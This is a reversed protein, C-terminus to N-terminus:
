PKVKKPPRNSHNLHKVASKSYGIEKEYDSKAKKLKELLVKHEASDAINRMQQPDNKLDYLEYKGAIEIFTYRETRIASHKPSAYYRYYVSKRWDDPTKGALIGKLSEGQMADPIAVGALDLFTPAYDINVCIDDSVSGAKILKPYRVLLPMRLSEELALRKDYFGHQGLWYGQDSSYVVLTNETLEHKDLYDLVRGVNEDVATVCRIYTKAMHQYAVRWKDRNNSADHPEMEATHREYYDNNNGKRSLHFKSEKLFAKKLHSDGIHVDEYLNSPEPIKVDKLLENHRPPYQYDHHPAKFHLLLCFPKEKDRKDLWKIARDTYVDSSYGQLKELEDTTNSYFTPNFYKGQGKVVKYKDFGRPKSHIHWKGVLWTQYGNKQLEETFVPSSDMISGNLNLVGNKHSYQGTMISARSPSCISNNCFTNKFLMGEKAIRDLNPTKAFDKLHSGYASIAESAHDDSFIFVINPKEYARVSLTLILILFLKKFNRM